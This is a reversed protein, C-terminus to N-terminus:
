FCPQVKDTSSATELYGVAPFHQAICAIMQTNTTVAYLNSQVISSRRALAQIVSPQLGLSTLAASTVSENGPMFCASLALGSIRVSVGSYIDILDSISVGIADPAANLSAISFQDEQSKLSAVEEANAPTRSCHWIPDAIAINCSVTLASIFAWKM